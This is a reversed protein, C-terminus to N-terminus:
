TAMGDTRVARLWFSRHRLQVPGATRIREHVARLPAADRTVDVEPIAWPAQRLYWTLVGVDAFAITVPGEQSATVDLGASKLQRVALELSFRRRGPWAVKLLDYVDRYDGGVQQTLFTGSAALVRNVEGANFAEHRDIVLGFAGDRFPLRGRREDAEQANNDPAGETHVVPIGLARLRAAAIPVNPPWSETAVTLPRSRGAAACYTALQEGGGTGLDLIAAAGPSLEAVLDWYRWPPGEERIRNGFRTFDWGEIPASLGEAYLADFDTSARV